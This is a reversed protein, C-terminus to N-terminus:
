VEVGLLNEDIIPLTQKLEEIYKNVQQAHFSQM